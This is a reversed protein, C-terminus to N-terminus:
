TVLMSNMARFPVHHQPLLSSYASGESTYTEPEGPGASAKRQTSSSTFNHDETASPSPKEPQELNFPLTPLSPRPVAHGNPPLLIRPISQPHLSFLTALLFSQM